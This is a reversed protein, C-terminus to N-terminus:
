RLAERRQQDATLLQRRDRILKGNVSRPLADLVVLRRPVKHPSLHEQCWRTLTAPDLEDAGEVYAEVHGGHVVVAEAVGSHRRLAAEVETLDVKMGGVAVVSDARGRITIVGDDDLEARDFTRLWGDGFRDARDPILYPSRDMRIQLEGDVVRVGIGPAARGVAPPRHRGSLDCAIIGVETMGYVQGVRIGYLERFRDFTAAPMQEGASVALRLSPLPSAGGARTLLDFHLPVGIIVNVEAERVVRLVESPLVNAAFVLPARVQLAHLVGGILGWTHIMSSLVLVREGTRHMPEALLSYREIEEQLSQATRGIVKPRGTSGSSFQVLCVDDRVPRGAPPRSIEWRCEDRFGTPQDDGEAARLHFQPRCLELLAASEPARLRADLLMVQAGRTWLAFLLVLLTHSPPLQLAVTSGPGIGAAALVGAEDAIRSRLEGATVARSGVSWIEDPSWRDLASALWPVETM